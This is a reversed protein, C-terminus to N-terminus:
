SCCTVLEQGPPLDAAWEVATDPLVRVSGPIRTGDHNYSARTRVDVVLPSDPEALWAALEQATVMPVEGEHQGFLGAVTSEREEELTERAAARGYWAGVPTATGGHIAM